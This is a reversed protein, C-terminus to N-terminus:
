LGYVVGVTANPIWGDIIPITNTPNYSFPDDKQGGYLLDAGLTLEIGVREEVGLVGGVELRFAGHGDSVSQSASIEEVRAKSSIVNNLYVLGIKGYGYTRNGRVRTTAGVELAFHHVAMTSVVEIPNARPDVNVRITRLSSELRPASRQYNLGIFIRRARPDYARFYYRVGGRFTPGSTIGAYYDKDYGTTMVGGSLSVAVRSFGITSRRTIERESPGASALALPIDGATIPYTLQLQLKEVYVSTITSAPVVRLSVPGEPDLRVREPSLELLIGAVLSGDMTHVVVRYSQAHAIPATLLLTAVFAQLLRLYHPTNM